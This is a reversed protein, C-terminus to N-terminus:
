KYLYQTTTLSAHGLADKVAKMDNRQKILEAAFSRRLSEPTITADLGAKKVYKKVIRQITRPTLNADAIKQQKQKAKDHRIFLASQNDSRKQLYKKIWCKAQNTLPVTRITNGM